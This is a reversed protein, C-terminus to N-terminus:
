ALSEPISSMLESDGMASPASIMPALSTPVGAARVFLGVGVAAMGDKFGIFGAGHHHNLATHAGTKGADIVVQVVHVLGQHQEAVGLRDEGADDFLEAGNRPRHLVSIPARWMKM